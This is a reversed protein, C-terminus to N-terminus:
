KFLIHELLAIGASLATSAITIWKVMNKHTTVSMLKFDELERIREELRKRDQNVEKRWDEITRLKYKVQWYEDRPKLREDSEQEM